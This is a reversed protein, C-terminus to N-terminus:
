PTARTLEEKRLAWTPLWAVFDRPPMPRAIFYGQAVNCGRARLYNWDDADEIGEGVCRIGLSRAMDLSAALIAARQPNRHAGHVFSRDIKIETFPLDRLHALSSHGTGFDDISLEIHKLRLRTLVDLVTRADQMLRSETVELILGSPPVGARKLAGVVLNPLDARGLDDVSVNVAVSHALGAQRWRRAQALADNLVARTLDTILGNAEAPPVFQDPFVLGDDPHHWRALMEVGTVVGSALRVQPQCHCIIEDEAIARRPDDPDYVRRVHCPRTAVGDGHRALLDRLGAKTVPKQLGGLVRLGHARALHEAARLISAEEGTALILEGAFNTGALARVFEIGDVGPMQLDCVVIDFREGGDALLALADAAHLMGTVDTVNLDALHHELLDLDFESDDILLIKM